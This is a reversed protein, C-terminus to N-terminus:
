GGAEVFNTIKLRLTLVLTTLGVLASSDVTIEPMSQHFKRGLRVNTSARWGVDRELYSDRRETERQIFRECSTEIERDPM